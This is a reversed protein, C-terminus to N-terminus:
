RTDDKRHLRSSAAECAKRVAELEDAHAAPEAGEGRAIAVPRPPPICKWHEARMAAIFARAFALSDLLLPPPVLPRLRRALEQAAREAAADQDTATM